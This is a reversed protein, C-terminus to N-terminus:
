DHHEINGGDIFVWDHKRNEYISVSPEPFDPDAFAGVPIATMREFPGAKYFITSGCDPCFNYSAPAGNDTIRDWTKFRGSISVMADPFRAQAGFSSGTRKQCALCHCVSIRTPEGKCSVNLQGCRCSANRIAAESM